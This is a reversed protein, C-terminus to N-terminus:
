GQSPRRRRESLDVPHLHTVGANAGAGQNAVTEAPKVICVRLRPSPMRAYAELLQRVGPEALPYVPSNSSSPGATSSEFFEGVSVDLVSAIRALRSAGVRGAGQEYRQVQQFTVGVRAALATQSIGRHVRLMRIRAGVMADLAGSKRMAM